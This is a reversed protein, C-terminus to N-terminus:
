TTSAAHISAIADDLSRVRCRDAARASRRRPCALFERHGGPREGAAPQGRVPQLWRLPRRSPPDTSAPTLEGYYGDVSPLSLKLVVREGDALDALRDLVGARVLAEAAAEDPSATDTM